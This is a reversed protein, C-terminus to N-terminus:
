VRAPAGVTRAPALRSVLYCLCVLVLDEIPSAWTLPQPFFVGFCGCNDLRLGRLLSVLMWLAYAMNLGAAVLAGTRLRWGTLLWVALLAEVGTILSALPLLTVERFAQYLDNFPCVPSASIM